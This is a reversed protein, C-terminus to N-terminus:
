ASQGRLAAANYDDGSVAKTKRSAGSRNQPTGRWANLKKSLLPIDALGQAWDTNLMNRAAAKLLELGDGEIDLAKLMTKVLKGDRPGQVIYRRKNVTEFALAFWDIFDM